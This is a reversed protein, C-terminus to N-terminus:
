FIHISQEFVEESEKLKSVLALLEARVLFAMGMNAPGVREVDRSVLKIAESLLTETEDLVGRRLWLHAIFANLRGKLSCDGDCVMEKAVELEASAMFPERRREFALAHYFHDLVQGQNDNLSEAIKIYDNFDQHAELEKSMALYALGRYFLM